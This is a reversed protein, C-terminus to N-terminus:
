SENLMRYIIKATNESANKNGLKERILMLENKMTDIKKEDSLFNSVINFINQKTVENQILEPVVTKGSLINVMGINKVKVLRKSIFYTIKSTKYVIIMPLNIIGAELTSTGSKIIGFYSNKMLDYNHGSIIKYEVGNEISRFVNENMNDSCAVVIQMDFKATIMEAAKIADPFIENVEQERSGPMLLLIEKDPNLNFREALEDKSLFKHNDVRNILPHGVFEADIGNERYLKEEFPFVVLMKNVLNKLKKIRGSGWAWVQPSIYYIIKVDKEKLKKAININFGPYDILVATKINEKDIVSLVDKKVKRIFPLHKIIEKFGLFSLKNIHHIVKLGETKMKDGGIGFFLINEDFFKLSSMLAAGHLDGSVEGAIILLKNQNENM